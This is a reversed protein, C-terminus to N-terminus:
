RKMRFIRQEAPVRQKIRDFASIHEGATARLASEGLLLTVRHAVSESESGALNGVAGPPLM